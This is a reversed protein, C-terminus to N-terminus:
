PEFPGVSTREALLVADAVLQLPAWDADSAGAAILEGFHRYLAPYEAEDARRPAGGGLTMVAGGEDLTLTTGDDRTLKMTWCPPGAHAFDLAYDIVGTDSGGIGCAITGSAAIPAQQNAPVEFRASAMALPEAVIRTLMSLANIAPDFVGMGGAQWLWHQGPHWVHADEKWDISGGALRHGALWAHAPGVMPAFRSHWAFLLSQGPTALAAIARAEGVGAAPPKELLVHLGAGIAQRALGARVQPPTCLAVADVPPGDRLLADLSAFCAAPQDSGRPDVLAALAFAPDAAIAPLHADVAIKGAGIIAIRIPDM